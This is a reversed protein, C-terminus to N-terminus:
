INKEQLTSLLTKSQMAFSEENQTKDSFHFHYIKQSRLPAMYGLRHGLSSRDKWRDQLRRKMEPAHLSKSVIANSVAALKNKKNKFDFRHYFSHERNGDM